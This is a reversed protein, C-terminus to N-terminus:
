WEPGLADWCTGPPWEKFGGVEIRLKPTTLNIKKILKGFDIKEYMPLGAQFGSLRLFRLSSFTWRDSVFVHQLCSFADGILYCGEITLVSLGRLTEIIGIARPTIAISVLHLSEISGISEHNELISLVDLPKRQSDRVYLCTEELYLQRVNPISFGVGNTCYIETDVGEFVRINQFVKGIDNFAQIRVRKTKLVEIQRPVDQVPLDWMTTLSIELHVLKPLIFLKLAHPTDRITLSTLSTMVSKNTFHTDNGSPYIGHVTLTTLNEWISAGIFWSHVDFSLDVELALQDIRLGMLIRHYTYNFIHYVCPLFIHQLSNFKFSSLRSLLPGHRQEHYFWVCLTLSIIRDAHPQILDLFKFTFPLEWVMEIPASKARQFILDALKPEGCKLSFQLTQWSKHKEVRQHTEMRNDTLHIRSWLESTDNVVDRFRGCVQNLVLPSTGTEVCIKCIEGILEPPLCRIPSIFSLHNVRSEELSALQIQINSIEERLLAIGENLDEIVSLCHKIEDDTPLRRPHPYSIDM